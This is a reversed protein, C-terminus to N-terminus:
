EIIVLDLHRVAYVHTAFPVLHKHVAAAAVLLRDTIVKVYMCLASPAHVYTSVCVGQYMCLQLDMIQAIKEWM